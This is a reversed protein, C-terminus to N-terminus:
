WACLADPRKLPLSTFHGRSWRLLQGDELAALLHGFERKLAPRLRGDGLLQTDRLWGDRGVQLLDLALPAFRGDFVNLCDTGPLQGLQFPDFALGPSGPLARLLWSLRGDDAALGVAALHAAAQFVLVPVRPEQIGDVLANGLPPSQLTKVNGGQRILNIIDL